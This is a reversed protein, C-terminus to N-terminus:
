PTVTSAALAIAVTPPVFGPFLNAAASARFKSLRILFVHDLIVARDAALWDRLARAAAPVAVRRLGAALPAPLDACGLAFTLPILPHLRCGRPLLHASCVGLLQAIPQSIVWFKGRDVSCLGIGPRACPTCLEPRRIRCPMRLHFGSGTGLASSPWRKSRGIPINKPFRDDKMERYIFTKGMGTKACVTTISWLENQQNSM